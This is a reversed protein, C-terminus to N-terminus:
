AFNRYDLNPFINDKDELDKLGDSDIHGSILQEYLRTFRGLHDKTRKVAYEVMTGTKMIFAWDSSQALLLERGAQQLARLTVGEAHPFRRTLEEMRRSAAHLHRYIWDNSGNLWVENYGNHGWSSACPTCVQNVEHRELYEAPTIAQIVGSSAQLKRFLFDLWEPGEFWWHGFLEADYPAVTIPPREMAPALWEAQRERNFMFNGAHEAARELAWARNYPEKQDTKGTIRYYKIGTNMRQGTAQIYPRVYNYDLDWGVDRYYDRYVPDGPYGEEASWVQKSSDLDRGFTAVGTPCYIPAHLGYRPRPESYLVGHSETFFFQLGVDRLTEELGPYYGCEPLWIGHPPRGFSEEYHAIATRLQGRVASPVTQLLPLFGHTAGCTILEVKGLEQLRGFAGPVDYRYDQIFAQRTQHFRDLYMLALRHFEPEHRTREMEKTALEILKDLHREYRSILLPDRLMSILPPSLTITLRFDVNDQVLGNMVRLLPIYTDTIAEYLWNEELFSEHEPHRVYPLHCHLVLCLYGLPARDM